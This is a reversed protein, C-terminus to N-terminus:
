VEDIRMTEVRGVPVGYPKTPNGEKGVPQRHGIGYNTGAQVFCSSREDYPPCRFDWPSKKGNEPLNEPKQSKIATPDKFGSKM